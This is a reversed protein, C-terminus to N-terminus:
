LVRYNALPVWKGEVNIMCGTTFSYSSEFGMIEGKNGCSYEQWGTALFFVIVLLIIGVFVGGVLEEDSYM